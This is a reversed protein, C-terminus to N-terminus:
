ISKSESSARQLEQWQTDLTTQVTTGSCFLSYKCLAITTAPPQRLYLVTTQQPAFIIVPNPLHKTKTVLQKLSLPETGCYDMSHKKEYNEKLHQEEGIINKVTNQHDLHQQEAFQAIAQQSSIPYGNLPPEIHTNSYLITNPEFNYSDKPTIDPTNGTVITYPTSMPQFSSYRTTMRLVKNKPIFIHLDFLAATLRNLFGNNLLHSNQLGILLLHCTKCCQNTSIIDLIISHLKAKKRAGDKSKIDQGRIFKEIFATINAITGNQHLYHVISKESHPLNQHKYKADDKHQDQVLSQGHGKYFQYIPEIEELSPCYKSSKGDINLPLTLDYREGSTNTIVFTMKCIAFNTKIKQTKISTYM